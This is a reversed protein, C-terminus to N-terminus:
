NDQTLQVDHPDSISKQPMLPISKEIQKGCKVINNM